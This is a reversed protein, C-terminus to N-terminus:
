APSSCTTLLLELISNGLQNGHSLQYPWVKKKLRTDQQLGIAAEKASKSPGAVHVWMGWNKLRRILLGTFVVFNRFTPFVSFYLDTAAFHQLIATGSEGTIHVSGMEELPFM